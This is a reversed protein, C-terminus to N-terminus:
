DTAHAPGPPPAPTRREDGRWLALLLAGLGLIGILLALYGGIGPLFTVAYLVVIGVLLSLAVSSFRQPGTRRLLAQAIALAVIIKGLYLLAAVAGGVLLGLPLGVLTFALLLASIPLMLLSSLGALACRMPTRQLRRTARGAYRPFLALFPLGALLAAFAKLSHVSVAVLMSQPTRQPAAPSVRKLEGGVLVSPDLFLERPSTYALDGAIRTGPLVVIDEATLRVDGGYEGALTVARALVRTRGHVRGELSAQEAAADLHGLVVANTALHLVSGASTLDGGLTSRLSLSQGMARLHGDVPGAVLLAGGALWADAEVHGTLDLENAFAFLDDTVAGEIRSTVAYIATQEALHSDPPLHFETTNFWQLAHAPLAALTAAAVLLRLVRKM